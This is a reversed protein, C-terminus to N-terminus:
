SSGDSPSSEPAVLVPRQAHHVVASSVSGLVLGRVGSLGRAGCVVLGSDLEDAVEVITRWTTTRTLALRPEAQWGHQRALPAGEDAAARAAAEERADLDAENDIPVGVAFAQSAVRLAVTEWV